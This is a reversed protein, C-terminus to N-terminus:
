SPLQVHLWATVAPDMGRDDLLKDCNMSRTSNGPCCRMKELSIGHGTSVGVSDLSSQSQM